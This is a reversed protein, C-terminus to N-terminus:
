EKLRLAGSTMKDCFFLTKTIILFEFQNGQCLLGLTQSHSQKLPVLTGFGRSLQFSSSSTLKM